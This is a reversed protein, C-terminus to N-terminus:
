IKIWDGFTHDWEEPEFPMMGGWHYFTLEGFYISGESEYFDVRVHPIGASLKGALEIMLDFQKPKEIPRDANPHGNTFPLHNFEMDFFDFKTETDKKARDTAIFMAKPEGDFCFFKYDTLGEEQGEEDKMYKEAIIRPKVNKYPWERGHFYYNTALSKEIKERAAELDLTSKDRCIVLGGSDHTCKIVFQDPLADFDIDDFKDWVGITSVIYQEGIKEAAYKKAEYKDVMVSYEPRRDYLKLWQLKENFTKPNKLDLDYGMQLKFLQKIYEEDSLSRGYSSHLRRSKIYRVCKKPNTLYSILKKIFM